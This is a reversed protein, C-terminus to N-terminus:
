KSSRSTLESLVLQSNTIQQVWFGHSKGNKYSPTSARLKKVEKMATHHLSHVAKARSDSTINPIVKAPIFHARLRGDDRADLMKYDDEINFLKKFQIKDFVLFGNQYAKEGVPIQHDEVVLLVGTEKLSNMIIGHEGFLELWYKPDIEHFVNCMIVLDFSNNKISELLKTEDNFYRDESEGYIESIAKKCVDKDPTSLDYAYYDLWESVPKNRPSDICGITSILRGKGAGFDLVKLKEEKENLFEIAEIMQKTQPDDDGTELTAPDFLCQFAFLSTAMQAPLSIFDSLKDIEDEDGVLGELVRRPINGSYGLVGNEMYWISSSDFHALLHVSHTAIWIQGISIIECLRDLVEILASPHLHNEPEDLLITYESLSKQQSYTAVCLILLITQGDSLRAEGLRFGFLTADGNDDRGLDTDLFAHIYSCLRSYRDQIEKKDTDSMSSYPHTSNFWQNQIYQISALTSQQSNSIGLKYQATHSKGRLDNVSYQNCDVLALEKPVFDIVDYSHEIKTTEVLNWEQEIEISKLRENLSRIYSDISGEWREDGRLSSMRKQPDKLYELVERKERELRVMISITPKKELTKRLTNFFRTKGSGNKGCVIVIKSLRSMSIKQLGHNKDEPINVKTIRM